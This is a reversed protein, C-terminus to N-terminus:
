NKGNIKSDKQIFEYVESKTKLAINEKELESVEVIIENCLDNPNNYNWNVSNIVEKIILLKNILKM